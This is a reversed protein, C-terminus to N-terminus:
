RSLFRGFADHSRFCQAARDGDVNCRQHRQRSHKIGSLAEVRRRKRLWMVVYGRRYFRGSRCVEVLKRERDFHKDVSWRAAHRSPIEKVKLVQDESDTFIMLLRADATFLHTRYITTKESRASRGEQRRTRTSYASVPTRKINHAVPTRLPLRWKRRCDFDEIRNRCRSLRRRGGRRWLKSMRCPRYIM